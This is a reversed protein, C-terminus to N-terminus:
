NMPETRANVRSRFRLDALQTADQVTFRFVTDDDATWWRVPYAM